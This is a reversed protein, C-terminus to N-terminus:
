GDCSASVTDGKSVDLWRTDIVKGGEAAILDRKVQTYAKRRAFLRMDEQRAEKVM